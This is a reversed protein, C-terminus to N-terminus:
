EEAALADYFWTPLRTAIAQTGAQSSVVAVVQWDGNEDMELVPGGSNGSVVPCNIWLIKDQRRVVDCDQRGSLLHPIFRHYGALAVSGADDPALPIPAVETIPSELVAFGVDFRPDHKGGVKYAPHRVQRIIKRAAIYEGRDWGAVFTRSSDPKLPGACHAATLIITPTILTASCSGKTALGARNLRGVAGLTARVEEPLLPMSVQQAHAM